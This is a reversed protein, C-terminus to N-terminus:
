NGAPDITPYKRKVVADMRGQLVALRRDLSFRPGKGRPYLLRPVFRVKM